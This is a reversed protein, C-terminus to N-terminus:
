LSPHCVAFWSGGRTTVCLDLEIFTHADPRSVPPAPCPITYHLSPLNPSRLALLYHVSERRQSLEKHPASPSSLTLPLLSAVALFTIHFYAFYNLKPDYSRYPPSPISYYLEETSLSM